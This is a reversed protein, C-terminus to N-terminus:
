DETAMPPSMISTTAGNLDPVVAPLNSSFRPSPPYIIMICVKSAAALLRYRSDLLSALTMKLWEYGALSHM